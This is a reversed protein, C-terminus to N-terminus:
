NLRRRETRLLSAVWCAVVLFAASPEPAATTAAPSQGWVSLLWTLEDDGVGPATPQIGTWGAPVPPVPLGWNSLLLTLDGDGIAGSGDFDGPTFEVVVGSQDFLGRTMVGAQAVLGSASVGSFGLPWPQTVSYEFTLLTYTGPGDVIGSGLAAFARGLEPEFTLGLSDGGETSGEIFPSDGPNATDFIASNIAVNTLSYAGADTLAIEAAISGSGTVTIDLRGTNAGTDVLNISPLALSPAASLGLMAVAALLTRM